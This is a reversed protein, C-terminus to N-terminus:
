RSELQQLVLSDIEIPHEATTKPDLRLSILAEQCSFPIIVEQWEGIAAPIPQRVVRTEDIGGSSEAWRLELTFAEASRYRMVLAKEGAPGLAPTGFHPDDGTTRVTLTGDKVALECNHFDTWQKLSSDFNWVAIVDPKLQELREKWLANDPQLKVLQEYLSRAQDIQGGREAAASAQGQLYAVYPEPHRTRLSELVRDTLWESGIGSTIDSKKLTQAFLDAARDTDGTLVYAAGLKAWPDSLKMAAFRKQELDFVSPDNAVSVRFCSLKYSPDKHQHNLRVILQMPQGDGVNESLEFVATHDENTQPAVAWGSSGVGDITGRVDWGEQSFDASANRLVIARTQDPNEASAAELTVENLVFNGDAAWGPGRIPFRSTTLAELRLSNIGKLESQFVVSYTDNKSPVQQHVFISVDTQLEMKAGTESKMEVPTLVTWAQELTLLLDALKVALASNEPDKALKEKFRALANVRTTQALTAQGQQAYYRALEAQFLGDDLARKSLEELVGDLLAAEAIIMSNIKPGTKEGIAALLLDVAKETQGLKVYAKALWFNEDPYYLDSNASVLELCKTMADIAAQFRGAEYNHEGVYKWFEPSNPESQVAENLWFDADDLEAETTAAQGALREVEARVMSGQSASVRYAETRVKSGQSASVRYAESNAINSRLERLMSLWQKKDDSVVGDDLGYNTPLKLLESAEKRVLEIMLKSRWLSPKGIDEEIAVYQQNARAFWKKSLEIKGLRHLTMALFYDTRYSGKLDSPNPYVLSTLSANLLAHTAEEFNGSRFFSAGLIEFHIASQCSESRSNTKIKAALQASEVAPGFDALSGSIVTAAFASYFPDLGHVVNMPTELMRKCSNQYGAQDDMQLQVLALQFLAWAERNGQEVIANLVQSAESWRGQMTLRDFESWQQPETLHRRSSGKELDFGKTADWILVVGNKDSVALKRGDPSWELERIPADHPGLTLFSKGNTPDWIHIVGDRGGSAVRRDDQSWTLDAVQSLHVQESFILTETQVDWVECQGSLNGVAIKKGDHNWAVATAQVRDGSIQFRHQIAGSDPDVIYVWGAFKLLGGVKDRGQGVVALQKGDPSWSIGCLGTMNPSQVVGESVVSRIMVCELGVSISAVRDLKPSLVGNLLNENRYETIFNNRSPQVLETLSPGLGNDSIQAGSAADYRLITGSRPDARFISKSNRDWASSAEKLNSEIRVPNQTPDLNWIRIVPDIGCTALRNGAPDWSIRTKGKNAAISRTLKGDRWIEVNGNFYAAAILSGESNWKL